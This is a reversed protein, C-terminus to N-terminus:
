NIDNKNKELISKLAKSHFENSNLSFKFNKNEVYEEHNFMSDKNESKKKM